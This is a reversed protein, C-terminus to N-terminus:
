VKVSWEESPLLSTMSPALTTLQSPWCLGAGILTLGLVYAGIWGNPVKGDMLIAGLVAAILFVAFITGAIPPIRPGVKAPIRANKAIFNANM